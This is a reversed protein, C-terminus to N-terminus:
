PVQVVTSGRASGVGQHNGCRKARAGGLFTKRLPHSQRSSPRDPTCAVLVALVTYNVLPTHKRRALQTPASRSAVRAEIHGTTLAQAGSSSPRTSPRTRRVLSPWHVTPYKALEVQTTRIPDGPALLPQTPPKPKPSPGSQPPLPPPSQHDPSLPHTLGRGAPPLPPPPPSISSPSCPPLLPSSPLPSPSSSSSSSSPLLPALEQLKSPSGGQELVLGVGAGAVSARASTASLM